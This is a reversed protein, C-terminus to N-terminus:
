VSYQVVFLIVNHVWGYKHVQLQLIIHLILIHVSCDIILQVEKKFYFESTGDYTSSIWFAEKFKFESKQDDTNPIRLSLTENKFTGQSWEWRYIKWRRKLWQVFENQRKTSVFKNNTAEYQQRDPLIKTLNIYM